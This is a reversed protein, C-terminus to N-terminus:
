PEPEPVPDKPTERESDTPELQMQKEKHRTGPAIGCDEEWTVTEKHMDHRVWPITIVTWIGIWVFPVGWGLLEFDTVTWKPNQCYIGVL